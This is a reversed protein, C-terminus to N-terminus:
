SATFYTFPIARRFHDKGKRSVTGLSEKKSKKTVALLEEKGKWRRVGAAYPGRDWVDVTQKQKVM